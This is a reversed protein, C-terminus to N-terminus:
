NLRFLRLTAVPASQRAGQRAELSAYVLGQPARAWLAPDLSLSQWGRGLPGSHQVGILVLAPTWLKLVVDDVPLSLELALRRPDPDPVGHAQV